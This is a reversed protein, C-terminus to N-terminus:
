TFSFAMNMPDVKYADHYAPCITFGLYASGEKSLRIKQVIKTEMRLFRKICKSGQFLLYATCLSVVLLKMSQKM